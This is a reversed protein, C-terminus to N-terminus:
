ILIHNNGCVNPSRMKRDKSARAANRKEILENINEPLPQQYISKLYENQFIGENILDLGLVEDFKRILSIKEEYSIEKSKDQALEIVLRRAAPMDLDDNIYELFKDTYFKINREYDHMMSTKEGRLIHAIRLIL